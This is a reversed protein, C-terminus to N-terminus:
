TLLSQMESIVMPTVTVDDAKGVLLEVVVTQPDSRAVIAQKTRIARLRADAPDIRAAAHRTRLSTARDISRFSIGNNSRQAIQDEALAISPGQADHCWEPRLRVGDRLQDIAICLKRGDKGLAFKERVGHVPKLAILAVDNEKRRNDRFADRRARYTKEAGVSVQEIDGDCACACLKNNDSVNARAKGAVNAVQRAKRFVSGPQTLRSLDPLEFVRGIEPRAIRRNRVGLQHGIPLSVEVGGGKGVANPQYWLVRDLLVYGIEKKHGTIPTQDHLEVMFMIVSVPGAFQASAILDSILAQELEPVIDYAEPHIFDAIVKGPAKLAKLAPLRLRLRTAGNRHGTRNWLDGIAPQIVPQRLATELKIRRRRIEKMGVTDRALRNEGHTEGCAKKTQGAPESIPARATASTSSLM